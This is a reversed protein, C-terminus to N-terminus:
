KGGEIAALINWAESVLKAIDDLKQKLTKLSPNATQAGTGGKANGPRQHGGDKTVDSGSKKRGAPPARTETAAERTPKPVKSKNESEKVPKKTARNVAAERPSQTKKPRGRRKPKEASTPEVHIHPSKDRAYSEPPQSNSEESSSVEDDWGGTPDSTDAPKSSAPAM